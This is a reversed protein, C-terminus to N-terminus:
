WAVCCSSDSSGGGVAMKVEASVAANPAMLAARSAPSRTGSSRETTPKSSMGSADSTIGGSVVTRCGSISIPAVATRKSCRSM